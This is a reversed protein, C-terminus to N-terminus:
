CGRYEECSGTKSRRETAAEKIMNNIGGVGLSSRLEIEM